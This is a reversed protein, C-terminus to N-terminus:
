PEERGPVEPIAKIRRVEHVLDECAACLARVDADPDYPGIGGLHETRWLGRADSLYTGTLLWCKKTYDWDFTPCAVPCTLDPVGTVYMARLMRDRTHPNRPDVFCEAPLRPELGGAGACLWYGAYAGEGQGVVVSGDDLVLGPALLTDLMDACFRIPDTM